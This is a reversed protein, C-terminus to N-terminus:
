AMPRVDAAHSKLIKNLNGMTFGSMWEGNDNIVPLARFGKQRLEAAADPQEMINIEEYHIAKLGLAKKLNDCNPCQNSSYVIVPAM